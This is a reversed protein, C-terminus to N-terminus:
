KVDSIAISKRVRIPRRDSGIIKRFSLQGGELGVGPMRKAPLWIHCGRSIMM